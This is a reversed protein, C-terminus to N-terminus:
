GKQQLVDASYLYKEISEFAFINKVIKYKDVWVRGNKWIKRKESEWQYGSEM